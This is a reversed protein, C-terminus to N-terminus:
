NERGNERGQATASAPSIFLSSKAVRCLELIHRRRMEDPSVGRPAVDGICKYTAVSSIILNIMQGVYAEPDVNPHVRGQAQGKRIHQCVVDAWPRVHRQVLAGIEDPRDLAERVLLRARDPDATFFGVTERLLADYQDEGSTAAKLLRPVLENWHSLMHELVSRRLADKSPFHYLLSPKRIGVAGAIESLSTGDFGRAAFLRTAEELIRTPVDSAATSKSPPM